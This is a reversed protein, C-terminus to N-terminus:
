GLKTAHHAAEVLWHAFPAYTASRQGKSMVAWARRDAGQGHLRYPLSVAARPVRCFCLWTAKRTPYGWWVQWVPLTWLDGISHGPLPLGAAEFLRSFAPQELM